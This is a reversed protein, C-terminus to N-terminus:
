ETGFALFVNGAMGGYQAYGSGVFVMGGAIVPGGSDMAGGKAPVGNVTTFDHMTDYDWVIKGDTASYARLHGDMSGSFVAGPIVSVAQSQAPSCPSRGACAKPPATMWMREGNDARFSFMGGGHDPDPLRGTATRATFRVDSLAVYV